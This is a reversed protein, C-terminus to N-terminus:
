RLGSGYKECPTGIYRYKNRRQKGTETFTHIVEILGEKRLQNLVMQMLRYSICLKIALVGMDISKGNHDIIYNVIIEKREEPTPKRLLFEPVSFRSKSNYYEPNDIEIFGYKEKHIKNGYYYVNVTHKRHKRKKKPEDAM